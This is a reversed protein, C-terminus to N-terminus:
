KGGNPLINDIMDCSCTPDHVRGIGALRPDGVVANANTPFRVQTAM